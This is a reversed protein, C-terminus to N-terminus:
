NAPRTECKEGWGSLRLQELIYLTLYFEKEHDVRVQEWLGYELTTFLNMYLQITKKCARAVIKGSYGDRALVDMCLYDLHESCSAEHQFYLFNHLLFPVEVM